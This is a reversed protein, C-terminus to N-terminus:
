DTAARAIQYIVLYVNPEMMLNGHCLDKNGRWKIYRLTYIDTGFRENIRGRQWTEGKTFMLKLRNRNELNQNLFLKENFFSKEKFSSPSINPNLM